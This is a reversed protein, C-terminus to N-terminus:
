PRRRPSCAARPPATAGEARGLNRMAASAVVRLIPDGSDAAEAVIAASGDGGIVSALYVAKSALLTDEGAVIEALHPLAGAGLEAAEAYDVEDADLRERVEHMTVPM